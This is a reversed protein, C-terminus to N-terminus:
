EVLFVPACESVQAMERTQFVPVYNITAGTASGEGICKELKM